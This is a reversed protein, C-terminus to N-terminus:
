QGMHFSVNWVIAAFTEHIADHTSSRKNGHACCFLHIGMLNIPYTCVCQPLSAISLHPLGLWMWLTTSFM